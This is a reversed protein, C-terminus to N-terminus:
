SHGGGGAGAAGEAQGGEQRGQLLTDVLVTPTASIDIDIDDKHLIQCTPWGYPTNLINFHALLQVSILWKQCTPVILHLLTWRCYFTDVLGALRDM